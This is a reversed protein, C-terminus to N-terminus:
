WTGAYRADNPQEAQWYQYQLRTLQRIHLLDHAVWSALLDGASLWFGAPHKHRKGLDPAGLSKLYALSAEREKLFGSLATDLAGNNYGRATVWGEPDIPPWNTDPNELTLKFRMRFDEKEEDYLHYIVELMSWENESPKWRLQEEQVDKLLARVLVPHQSLKQIATALM